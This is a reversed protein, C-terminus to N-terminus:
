FNEEVLLSSALDPKMASYISNNLRIEAEQASINLVTGVAICNIFLSNGGLSFFPFTIGSSPILGLVGGVNVFVQLLLMTAMGYSALSNFASQSRIGVLYMRCILFFVLGLIFMGGVLGLEELIINFIFDTHAEPLFGRKQISNGLGLGFLGGNYIAIYGMGLQYGAGRFVVPDFTEAMAQFRVYIYSFLSPIFRGRTLLISEIVITSLGIIVGLVVYAYRYAIGSALIMAIIGLVIISSNGLDPQIIVLALSIAPVLFVKHFNRWDRRAISSQFNGLMVAFYLPMTVKLYESAQISGLPTILWGQSGNIESGFFLTLVLLFIVVYSLLFVMQKSFLVSLKLKYLLIMAVVGLFL